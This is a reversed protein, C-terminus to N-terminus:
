REHHQDRPRGGKQHSPRDHCAPPVSSGRAPVAHDFPDGGKRLSTGCPGSRSGRWGATLPPKPQDLNAVTRSFDETGLVFTGTESRYGCVSALVVAPLRHESTPYNVHGFTLKGDDM